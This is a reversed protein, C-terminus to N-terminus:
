GATVGDETKRERVDTLESLLRLMRYNDALTFARFRHIGRAVGARLVDTLLVAGLGLGQWGDEVVFAVEAADPEEGPEYRGVGVLEVGAPTDREAVLALRRRYDVNAFFHAWDPPLRRMVTFFRQYVTYRSLRGYLDVLRPEDDPRIPRIRLYAGDRLVVPRELERPYVGASAAAGVGAATPQADSREPEAGAGVKGRIVEDM